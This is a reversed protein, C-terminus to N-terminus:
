LYVDNKTFINILISVKYYKIKWSKIDPITKKWREYEPVTFFSM